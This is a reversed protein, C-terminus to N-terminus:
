LLLAVFIEDRRRVLADGDDAIAAERDVLLAVVRLEATLQEILDLAALDDALQLVDRVLHARGVEPIRHVHDAALLAVLHARAEEVSCSLGSLDVRHPLAAHRTAEAVDVDDVRPSLCSHGWSDTRCPSCEREWRCSTACRLAPM